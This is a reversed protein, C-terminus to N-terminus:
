PLIETFRNKENRLIRYGIQCDLCRKLTCYENKLQILAQSESSKKALIGVKKWERVISNSETGLKELLSVARNKIAENDTLSGYSFQLPAITNILINRIATLGTFKPDFAAKQDFQYHDNWYPTTGTRLIEIYQDPTHPETILNFLNPNLKNLMAFQSIRITPFSAPMLRLFKWESLHMESLSHKHKLFLYQNYLQKPYPDKLEPGLFGAAGFLLAETKEIDDRYRGLLNCSVIGTLQRFPEANPKLGFSAGLQTYFVANWNNKSKRLEDKIQATKQELREICLRELWLGTHLPDVKHILNRCSIDVKEEMMKRYQDMLDEKVRGKLFLCPIITKDLRYVECDCIWCVHLITNDYAKDLHHKHQFWESSSLHIEVHGVWLTSDIRIRANLFDPGSNLNYTGSYVMQVKKGCSTTLDRFDFLGNQWIFHLFKEKM